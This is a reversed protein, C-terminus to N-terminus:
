EYTLSREMELTGYIECLCREVELRYEDAGEMRIGDTFCFNNRDSSRMIIKSYHRLHHRALEVMAYALSDFGAALTYAISDVITRDSVVTDFKSLLDLDTKLHTTFIWMQSESTTDGNIPYPCMSADDTHVAIAKNPHAMKLTEAMRFCSTTKGTGHTGTYAIISMTKKRPQLHKIAGVSLADEM